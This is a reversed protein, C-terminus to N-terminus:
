TRGIWAHTQWPLSRGGWGQGGGRHLTVGKGPGMAHRGGRNGAPLGTHNKSGHKHISSSSSLLALGEWPGTPGGSKCPAAGLRGQFGWATGARMSNAGAM